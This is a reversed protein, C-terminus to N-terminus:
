ESVCCLSLISWLKAAVSWAAAAIMRVLYIEVLLRIEQEAVNLQRLSHAANVQGAFRLPQPIADLDLERRAIWGEAIAQCPPPTTRM